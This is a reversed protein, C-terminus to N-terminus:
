ESMRSVMLYAWIGVSNIFSSTFFSSISSLFSQPTLCFQIIGNLLSTLFPRRSLDSLGDYGMFGVRYKQIDIINNNRETHKGVASFCNIARDMIVPRLHTAASPVLLIFIRILPLPSQVM